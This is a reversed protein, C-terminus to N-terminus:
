PTRLEVRIVTQPVSSYTVVTNRGVWGGTVGNSPTTRGEWSNTDFGLRNAWSGNNIGANYFGYNAYPTSIPLLCLDSAQCPSRVAQTGAGDEYGQRVETFKGTDVDQVLAKPADSLIFAEMEASSTVPADTVVGDVVHTGDNPEAALVQGTAADMLVQANGAGALAQADERPQITSLEDLVLRQPDAANSSPATFVGPVPDSTAHATAPAAVLAAALVVSGIRQRLHM